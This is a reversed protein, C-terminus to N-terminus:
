ALDEPIAAVPHAVLSGARALLALLPMPDHGPEARAAAAACSLLPEGALAAALFAADGPGLGHVPVEFTRDRLVLATEPRDLRIPHPEAGPQNMAWITAAPFPSAVLQVSPHLALRAGAPDAAAAALAGPALPECDAAHYARGRALEIRAVDAMYPHAALPPFAALFAPMAGGWELLVPSAPPHAAAFARALGAFFAEGVLREIVPFRRALASARAVAVNNRYVAFRRPTEEPHLATVGAPLAGSALGAAFAAAFGPSPAPDPPAPM